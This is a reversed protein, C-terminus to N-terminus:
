PSARDRTSAAKGVAAGGGGVTTSAHSPQAAGGANCSMVKSMRRPSTTPSAPRTSRGIRLRATARRPPDARRCTASSPAASARPRRALRDRLADCEEGLAALVLPEHHVPGDGLVHAHHMEVITHGGRPDELAPALQFSTRSFASRTDLGVLRRSVDISTKLDSEPPLWLLNASALHSTRCAGSNSGILRGAADVDARLPSRRAARLARRRGAHATRIAELSRVLDGAQRVAHESRM